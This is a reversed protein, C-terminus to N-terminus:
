ERWVPVHLKRGQSVKRSFYKRRNAYRRYRRLNERGQDDFRRRFEPEYRTLVVTGLREGGGLIPIITHLKDITDYDYKFIKLAEDAKLNATTEHVLLLAENYESPLMESGTDPDPIVNSDSKIAYYVALVKSNTNIIYVNADMLESLIQCLDKFSFIGTTSEQLVWNLKRVKEIM